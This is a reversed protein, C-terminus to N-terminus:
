KKMWPLARKIFAIPDDRLSGGAQIIVGLVDEAVVASAGIIGSKVGSPLSMDALVAGTLTGVVMGIIVVRLIRMPRCGHEPADFFVRAIVSASSISIPIWLKRLLEVLEDWMNRGGREICQGCLM